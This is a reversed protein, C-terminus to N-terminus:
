GTSKGTIANFGGPAPVGRRSIMPQANARGIVNGDADLRPLAGRGTGDPRDDSRAPATQISPITRRGHEDKPIPNTPGKARLDALRARLDRQLPTAAEMPARYNKAYPPLSAGVVLVQGSHETAIQRNEPPNYQTPMLSRAVHQRLSAPAAEYLVLPIRELRGSKGIKHKFPYDYLGGLREAAEKSQLNDGGWQALAAADQEWIIAGGFTQVKPQGITVDARLVGDYTACWM